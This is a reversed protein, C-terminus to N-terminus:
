TCLCQPTQIQQMFVVNNVALATEAKVVTKLVDTAPACLIKENCPMGFCCLM